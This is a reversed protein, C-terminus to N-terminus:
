DASDFQAELDRSGHLVREVRIQESKVAYFIVYRAFTLSRLERQLEPRAKGILPSHAIKECRRKLEEVFRVASRPSDKFIYDACEEIDAVAAPSFQVIM